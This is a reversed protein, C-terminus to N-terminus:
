GIMVTEFDEVEVVRCQERNVVGLHDPFLHKVAAELTVEPFEALPILHRITFQHPFVRYIEEGTVHKPSRKQRNRILAKHLQENIPQIFLRAGLQTVPLKVGCCEMGPSKLIRGHTCRQYGSQMSSGITSEAKKEM